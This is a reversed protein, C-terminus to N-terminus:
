GALWVRIGRAIAGLWLDNGDPSLHVGDRRFLSTALFTIGPHPIDTGGLARVTNVAIGNIRRRANNVAAM